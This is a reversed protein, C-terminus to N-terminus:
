GVSAVDLGDDVGKGVKVSVGIEDGVKVFVGDGDGNGVLVGVKM